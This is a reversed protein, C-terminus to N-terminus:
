THLICKALTCSGGRDRDPNWGQSCVTQSTINVAWQGGQRKKPQCGWPTIWPGETARSLPPITWICWSCRPKIYILFAINENNITHSYLFCKFKEFWANIKPKKREQTLNKRLPWTETVVSGWWFTSIKHTLISLVLVFHWVLSQRQKVVAVVVRSCGHNCGVRFTYPGNKDGQIKRHLEMNGAEALQLSRVWLSCKWSLLSLLLFPFSSIWSM